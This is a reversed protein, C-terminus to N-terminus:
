EEKRSTGQKVGGSQRKKVRVEIDEVLEAGVHLYFPDRTARYLAYTSEAMEPRLPYVNFEPAKGAAYSLYLHLCISVSISASASLSVFVSLCFSLYISPSLFHSSSPPSPLPYAVM